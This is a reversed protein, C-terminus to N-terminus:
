MTPPGGDCQAIYLPPPQGARTVLNVEAAVTWRYERDRDSLPAVLSPFSGGDGAVGGSTVADAMEMELTNIAGAFSELVPAELPDVVGAGFGAGVSPRHKREREKEITKRYIM